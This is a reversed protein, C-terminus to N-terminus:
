GTWNALLMGVDGGDILGDENLDYQPNDEAPSGFLAILLGLDAGNVTGDNNFDGLLNAEYVATALFGGAPIANQNLTLEIEGDASGPEIGGANFRWGVLDRGRHTVPAHLTVEENFRYMLDFPGTGETTNDLDGPSVDVEVANSIPNGAEDAVRIRLRRLIGRDEFATKIAATDPNGGGDHPPDIDASLMQVAMDTFTANGPIEKVAEIIYKVVRDGGVEGRLDWLARSFIQSDHHYHDGGLM